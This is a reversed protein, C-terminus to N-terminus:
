TRSIALVFFLSGVRKKASWRWRHCNAKSARKGLSVAAPQFTSLCVLKIVYFARRFSPLICITISLQDCDNWNLRISPHISPHVSMSAHAMSIPDSDHGLACNSSRGRRRCWTLDIRTVLWSPGIISWTSIVKLQNFLSSAKMWTAWPRFSTSEARSLNGSAQLRAM